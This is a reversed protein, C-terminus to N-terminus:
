PHDKTTQIQELSALRCRLVENEDRIQVFKREAADCWDLIFRIEPRHLDYPILARLHDSIM